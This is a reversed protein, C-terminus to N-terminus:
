ALSDLAEIIVRETDADFTSVAEDFVLLPPRDDLM